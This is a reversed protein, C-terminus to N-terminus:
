IKTILKELTATTGKVSNGYINFTISDFELNLDRSVKSDLSIKLNDEQRFGVM